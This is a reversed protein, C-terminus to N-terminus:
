FYGVELMFILGAKHVHLLIIVYVTIKERKIIMSNPAFKVCKISIGVRELDGTLSSYFVSPHMLSEIAAM